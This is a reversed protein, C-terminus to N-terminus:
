PTSLGQTLVSCEPITQFGRWPSYWRSVFWPPRSSNHQILITSRTPLSEKAPFHNWMFHLASSGGDDEAAAAPTVAHCEGRGCQARGEAALSGQVSSVARGRGELWGEM